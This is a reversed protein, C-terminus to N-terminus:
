TKFWVYRSPEKVFKDRCDSSCFFYSHGRYGEEGAVAGRTIRMGCVPDTLLDEDLSNDGRDLRLYDDLFALLKKEVWDAIADDDVADISVTLKDHPEYKHFVPMVRFEYRVVLNEVLDDHEIRFEVRCSAPFRECYGFSAECHDQRDSRALNANPFCSITAALRPTITNAILRVALQAFTRLKPQLSDMQRCIEEKNSTAQRALDMRTKLKLKFEDLSM